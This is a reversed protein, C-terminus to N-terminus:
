SSSWARDAVPGTEATHERPRPRRDRQGALRGPRPDGRRGAHPRRGGRRHPRLRPRAKVPVLEARGDRVVAVRLGESRFLLAKAPITMGRTALGVRLRVVVYAGPLVEGGPNEMEVESLM